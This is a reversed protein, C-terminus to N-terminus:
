LYKCVKGSTDIDRIFIYMHPHLQKLRTFLFVKYYSAEYTGTIRTLETKDSHFDFFRHQYTRQRNGSTKSEFLNQIRLISSNYCKFRWAVVTSRDLIVDQPLCTSRSIYDTLLIPDGLGLHM